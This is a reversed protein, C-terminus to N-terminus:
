TVKLNAISKRPDAGLARLYYKESRELFFGGPAAAAAAAAGAREKKEATLGPGAAEGSPAHAVNTSADPV